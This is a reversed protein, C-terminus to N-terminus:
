RGIGGFMGAVLKFVWVVACALFAFLLALTVITFSHALWEGMTLTAGGISFESAPTADFFNALLFEYLLTYM